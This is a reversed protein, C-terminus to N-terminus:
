LAWPKRSQWDKPFGMSSLPVNPHGEILDRLAEAWHNNSWIKRLMLQLALLVAYIRDNKHDFELRLANPIIPKITLIRNWVRAHHACLNRVYSISHLWSSLIQHSLGFKECIEKCETQRLFKFCHSISGFSIVEFVMWCPPMDPANYTEYYHKIFIDRRHADDHGIQRKVDAVFDSHWTRVEFKPRKHLYNPKAFLNQDLYWHPGHRMAISNSVASRIAIEIKEVAELILM